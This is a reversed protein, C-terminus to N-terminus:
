YFTIPDENPDENSFSTTTPACDSYDTTNCVDHSSVHPKFLRLTAQYPVNQIVVSLHELSVNISDLGSILNDKVKQEFEERLMLMDAARYNHAAFYASSKIIDDISRRMQSLSEIVTSLDQAKYSCSILISVPKGDYSEYFDQLNRTLTQTSIMTTVKMNPWLFYWGSTRTKCYHSNKDIIVVTNPPVKKLFLLLIIIIIIEM